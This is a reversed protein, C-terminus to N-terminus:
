NRTITMLWKDYMTDDKEYSNELTDILEFGQLEAYQRVNPYLSPISAVLTNYYTNDWLWQMGKDGFEKSHQERYEPIIQVHVQHYGNPTDHVLVIGIVEDDVAGTVYLWSDDPKYEEKKLRHGGIMEWIGDTTLIRKVLDM